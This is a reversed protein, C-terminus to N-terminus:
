QTFRVERVAILSKPLLAVREVHIAADPFLAQLMGRTLLRAGEIRQMADSVNRARPWNGLAFRQLLALRWPLPLWHFFPTMCHPELPFWFNPTQVYYSPALRRIEAAMRQMRSWEGVHEVVSNSHVIDFRGDPFMGLDCGDAEVIQIRDDAPKHGAFEPTVITVSFNLDRFSQGVARHWYGTTGGVDLISIRGTRAAVRRALNVFRAFRARRLRSALSAPDDYDALKTAAWRTVSM